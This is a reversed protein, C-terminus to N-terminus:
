AALGTQAAKRAALAVFIYGWGAFLLEVAVFLGIVWFGSYPWQAFILGGLLISIIASILPWYWGAHSRMQFAMIARLIGVGILIAAIILTFTMSALLPDQLIIIGAALYLLAILIHWVVSKWGLCFFSQALQFGGDVIILVGFIFITALTMAFSAFFGITGLIVSVIGLALLWGWNKTLDGFIPVLAASGAAAGSAPGSAPGSTPATDTM